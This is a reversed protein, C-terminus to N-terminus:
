QSYSRDLNKEVSVDKASDFPLPSHNNVGHSSLEIVYM